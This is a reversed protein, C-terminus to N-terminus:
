IAIRHEDGMARSDYGRIGAVSARFARTHLVDILREVEETQYIDEPMVLDYREHFLPIFDLDAALAAAAIGVAVDAQGSAVLAAAATHTDVENAYGAIVATDVGAHRLERDIWMRTGSGPNRNVIRAHQEVVDSLRRIGLPNGTAVILGQERHALTVVMVDRDPFLHKAYPVNYEGTEVDLLHCGAIDALGQRVGILSDLSGAVGAALNVPGTEGSALLEIALDHSVLAVVSKREREDPRILLSVTFAAASAAYYKETFNRTTREEVLRVLGASQLALVHHRVWAPHRDLARGLSSITHPQALLLRVIEMRHPETLARVAELREVSRLHEM